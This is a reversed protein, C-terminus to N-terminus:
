KFDDEVKLTGRSNLIRFKTFNKDSIFGNEGYTVGDETIIKVFKDSSITEKEEDWLLYEAYLEQKEVFNKVVVNKRATFVKEKKEYIAYEAELTSEIEQGKNYFVAKLGKTFEIIPAHDETEAFELLEPATIKLRVVSSDSYITVINTAHVAPLKDIGTMERVKSIDNECSFLM